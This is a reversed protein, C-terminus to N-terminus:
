NTLTYLKTGPMPVAKDWGIYNDSFRSNSTAVHNLKEREILAGANFAEELLDYYSSYSASYRDCMDDYWEQFTM